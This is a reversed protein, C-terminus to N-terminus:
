NDVPDASDMPRAAPLRPDARLARVPDDAARGVIANMPAASEGLSRSQRRLSLAFRLGPALARDRFHDDARTVHPSRIAASWVRAPCANRACGPRPDDNARPMPTGCWRAARERAHRCTKQGRGKVVGAPPPGTTVGPSRRRSPSTWCGGLGSM